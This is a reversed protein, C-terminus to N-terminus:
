ALESQLDVPEELLKVLREDSLGLCIEGLLGRGLSEAGRLKEPYEFTWQIM